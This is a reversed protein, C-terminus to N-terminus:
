RGDTERSSSFHLAIERGIQEIPLVRDALKAEAVHRPMGWVVSTAEDQVLITGGQEHIRRCGELGDKGMGTLVVALARPGFTEAVSRFLRDASPRCANEPPQQNLRMWVDRGELEVILHYDGPAIWIQGRALPADSTAERVAQGTRKSLSEALYRTFVPPMHQVILVPISLDTPFSSVVKALAKPGGTSSAIAVVGISPRRATRDAEVTSAMLKENRTEENRTEENGPHATATKGLVCTKIKPILEDYIAREVDDANEPKKVYDDAGLLLAEITEKVGRKTLRSFVIVPLRSDTKRLEALTALGDMEPMVLDLLVADPKLEAIKKLANVGNDATGAVDILPDNALSRSLILRIMSSDDVVLVRIKNM